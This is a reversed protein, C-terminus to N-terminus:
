EAVREYAQRILHVAPAVHSTNDLSFLVGGTETAHTIFAYETADFARQTPDDCEEFDLNLVLLLRRKRPIIEVFFDYVRYTVSKAGCLEIVDEGLALVQPRLLDFLTKSEPDFELKDLSFNAAQVKREELETARVATTDVTLAPWINVGKAALERGRTEM